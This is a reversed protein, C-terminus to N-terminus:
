GSLSSLYQSFSVTMRFSYGSVEPFSRVSVPRKKGGSVKGKPVLVFPKDLQNCISNNGNTFKKLFGTSLVMFRFM